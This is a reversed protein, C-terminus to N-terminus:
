VNKFYWEYMSKPIKNEDNQYLCFIDLMIKTIYEIHNGNPLASFEFLKDEVYLETENVLKIKILPFIHKLDSVTFRCISDIPTENKLIDYSDYSMYPLMIPNTCLNGKRLLGNNLEDVINNTENSFKVM